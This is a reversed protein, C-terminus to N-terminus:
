QGTRRGDWDGTTPRVITVCDITGAVQGTLSRYDTSFRGTLTIRDYQDNITITFTQNTPFTRVMMAEFYTDRWTLTFTDGNRTLRGTWQYTGVPQGVSCPNTARITGEWQGVADAPGASAPPLLGPPRNTYAARRQTLYTPAYQLDSKVDPGCFQGTSQRFQRVDPLVLVTTWDPQCGGTAGDERVWNIQGSQRMSERGSPQRGLQLFVNLSGNVRIRGGEVNLDCNEYTITGSAEVHDSGDDTRVAGSYRMQFRIQGSPNCPLAPPSDEFSNLLVVMASSRAAQPVTVNLIGTATLSEQLSDAAESTLRAALADRQATTLAAPPTTTTPTTPTTTTPATPSSSGGGCASGMAAVLVFVARM